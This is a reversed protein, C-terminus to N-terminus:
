LAGTQRWEIHVRFFGRPGHGLRCHLRQSNLSPPPHHRFRFGMEDQLGCFHQSKSQSRYFTGGFIGGFFFTDRRRQDKVVCHYPIRKPSGTTSITNATLAALKQARSSTRKDIGIDALTPASERPLLYSGRPGDKAGGAAAGTAKPM